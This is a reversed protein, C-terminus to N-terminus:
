LLLNLDESKQITYDQILDKSLQEVVEQSM